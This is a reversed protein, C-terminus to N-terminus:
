ILLNALRRGGYMIRSRAVMEAQAKYAANPEQGAIFTPYVFSVSADYSEKAWAAFDGNHLQAPDVRYKDVMKSVESGNTAWDAASLPLNAFGTYQYAVSDWVSHLNSVGNVVPSIHEFNGGADGKPYDDSVEATAHLPQHVDGTYHIILRLAFAQQDALAPFHSAIQQYYTSDKYDYRDM